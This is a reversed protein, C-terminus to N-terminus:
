ERPPRRRSNRRSTIDRVLAIIHSEGDVNVPSLSIEVAVLSGNKRVAELELGSGMPRARPAALDPVCEVLTLDV